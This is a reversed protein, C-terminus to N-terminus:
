GHNQGKAGILLQDIEDIASRAATKLREHRESLNASDTPQEKPVTIRELRSVAREVRGIAQILQQEVM